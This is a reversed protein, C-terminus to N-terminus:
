KAEIQGQAYEPDWDGGLSPHGTLEDSAAVDTGTLQALSSVLTQGTESAALNCGYILFDGEKSFAESWASIEISNQDLVESNLSENGIKVAGDSGHSILHVADLEQYALLTESIQDIGSRESDLLVVDLHRSDDAQALLDDVLAQYDDTATDVLVLERRTEKEAQEASQDDVTRNDELEHTIDV